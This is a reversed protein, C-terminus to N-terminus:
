RGQSQISLASYDTVQFPADMTAGKDGQQEMWAELLRKMEQIRPQYKSKQALNHMEWPDKELDYFEFEPRHVFRDVLMKAEPDKSEAAKWGGWVGSLPEKMYHKEHYPKDPTLNWILAYRENRISRIPFPHGEPINNHIGYAYDRARKSEGFLAKKFSIGDLEARPKGGAIDIFTPLLDEYQVIAHSVGGAKIKSPYRALMASHVGPYWCTWKGGPLQPGQEGLFMVITNDLKGSEALVELVSGVENDLARIEALYRTFIKRMKPDDVCNEPLVLKDPDFESPDGWTWPVHPHISCVYLLFPYNNPRRTDSPTHLPIKRIRFVRVGSPM